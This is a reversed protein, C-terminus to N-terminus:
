EMVNGPFFGRWAMAAYLLGSCHGKSMVFVDRGPWMPEAPNLELAAGYLVAMIDAASLEGGVHSSQTGSYYTLEVVDRRLQLALTELEGRSVLRKGEYRSIVPLSSQNHYEM